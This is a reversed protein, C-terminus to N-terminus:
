REGVLSFAMDWGTEGRGVAAKTNAEQNASSTPAV